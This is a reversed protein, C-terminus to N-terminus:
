TNEATKNDTAGAENEVVEAENEVAGTANEVAEAAEAAEAEAEEKARKEAELAGLCERITAMEDRSLFRNHDAQIILRGNHNAVGKVYATAGKAVVVPISNFSEAPVDGVEVVKDVRFGVTGSKCKMYVIQSLKQEEGSVKFLRRLSIVPVLTGRFSIVGECVDPAGVLASEVAGNEISSVSSGEMCFFCGGVDCIVQINM